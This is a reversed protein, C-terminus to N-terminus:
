DCSYMRCRKMAHAHRRRSAVTWRDYEMEEVLPDDALWDPPTTGSCGGNSYSPGMPTPSDPSQEDSVGGEIQEVIWRLGRELLIKRVIPWAVGWM